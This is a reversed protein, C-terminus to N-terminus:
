CVYRVLLAWRLAVYRVLVCSRLTFTVLVRCDVRLAFTYCIATYVYRRTVCILLWWRLHAGFLPRADLCRVRLLVVFDFAVYDVVYREAVCCCDFTVVTFLRTYLTFRLHLRARTRLLAPVVLGLTVVYGFGFTFRGCDFSCRLGFGIVLAYRLQTAPTWVTIWFRPYRAYHLLWCGPPTCRLTAYRTVPHTYRLWSIWGCYVRSDLTHVHAHCCVAYAVAFRTWRLILRLGFPLLRTAYCILSRLLLILGRVVVTVRTHPAHPFWCDLTYDM